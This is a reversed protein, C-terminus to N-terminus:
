SVASWDQVRSMYEELIPEPHRLRSPLRHPAPWRAAVDSFVALYRQAMQAATFRRAVVARCARRDLREVSLLAELLEHEDPRLFGTIGDDVIEPAAGAPTAVVPTGTALSELMVMGFPEAWAIPNLLCLADGMLALTDPRNLEGLYDIPGGLMPRIWTDFFDRERPERMKAAIRLPIGASRALQCSIYVGKHPSMRGVFAAYGGSGKGIPYDGLHLGHHIVAEVPIDLRRAEAAQNHSISVVPVLETM